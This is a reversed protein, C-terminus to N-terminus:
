ASIWMMNIDTYDFSCRYNCEKFSCIYKDTSQINKRICYSSIILFNVVSCCGVFTEVWYKQSDGTTDSVCHFNHCRKLYIGISFKLVSFDWLPQLFM